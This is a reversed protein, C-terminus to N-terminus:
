GRDLDAKPCWSSHRGYGVTDVGCECRPGHSWDNGTELPSLARELYHRITYASAPDEFQVEYEPESIGWSFADPPLIKTVTAKVGGVLVTDGVKFRYESMVNTLPQGKPLIFPISDMQAKFVGEFLQEFYDNSFTPM